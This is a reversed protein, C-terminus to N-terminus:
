NKQETKSAAQQASHEPRQTANDGGQAQAAAKKEALKRKRLRELIRSLRSSRQRQSM